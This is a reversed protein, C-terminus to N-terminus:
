KKTSNKANEIWKKLILNKGDFTAYTKENIWDGLNVYINKDFNQFMSQHRHGMIVFDFGESFKNNAIKIMGDTEGYDKQSTHSRSAKSTKKAIRAAFDPHLMSFLWITFKARFLIKLIKYGYDRLALGDGHHLYFKKKNRLIEIPERHVSIKLDKEFYDKMWFDHNGLIYHIKIKQRVLEDLKSIVRHYGRPIVHEYEFWYDFLDGLIFIETADKKLSDLFNLLAREKKEERLKEELGLHVDSFFYIKM